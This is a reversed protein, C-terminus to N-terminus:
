MRSSGTAKLDDGDSAAGLRVLVCRYLPPVLPCEGETRPEPDEPRYRLIVREHLDLAHSDPVSNLSNALM